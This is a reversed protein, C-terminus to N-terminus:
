ELKFPFKNKDGLWKRSDDFGIDKQHLVNFNISLDIVKAYFQGDSTFMGSDLKPKWDVGDIWGLLGEGDQAQIINAFKIKVLPSKNMVLINKKDGSAATSANGEQDIPTFNSYGPYLFTILKSIKIENTKAEGLSAAPVTWALAVTRTTNQFTGIPDNRGFVNETNWSSKFNQSLGTLFAPFEIYFGSVMSTFKLAAGTSGSYQQVLDRYTM